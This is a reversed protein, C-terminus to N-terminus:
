QMSASKTKINRDNEELQLTRSQQMLQNARQKEPMSANSNILESM